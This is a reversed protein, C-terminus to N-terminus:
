DAQRCSRRLYWCCCIVEPLPVHLLLPVWPALALRAHRGLLVVTCMSGCIAAAALPKMCGASAGMAAAPM